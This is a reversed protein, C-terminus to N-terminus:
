QGGLKLKKLWQPGPAEAALRRVLYTMVAESKLRALGIETRVPHQEPLGEATLLELMIDCDRVGGAADLVERLQDRVKRRAKGPLLAGFVRAGQLYRRISVRLDHVADADPTAVARELEALVRELRAGLEARAYQRIPEQPNV